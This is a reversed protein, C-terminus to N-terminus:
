KSQTYHYFIVFSFNRKINEEDRVSKNAAQRVVAGDGVIVFVAVGVVMARVAVTDTTVTAPRRSLMSVLSGTHASFSSGDEFSVNLTVM